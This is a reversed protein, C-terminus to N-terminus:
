PLRSQRDHRRRLARALLINGTINLFVKSYYQGIGGRVVTKQNNFPDWAFGFRPALNLSADEVGTAEKFANEHDYRVGYNLTFNPRVHWSDQAFLGIVDNPRRLNPDGINQTYQTPYTTLDNADFPRDTAFTFTGGTNNNFYSNARIRSYDLGFKLDHSGMTYSFNNVIQWRDETRGQPQNSPKGFNGSPRNITPQDLPTRVVNDAFHRGFQVRLENIARNSLVGTHSVVVDQNRNISDVGREFTNLGGVGSNEEVQKDIRYRVFM